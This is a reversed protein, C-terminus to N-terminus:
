KDGASHTPDATQGSDATQYQQLEVQESHSQLTMDTNTVNRSRNIPRTDGAKNCDYKIILVTVVPSLVMIGFTFPICVSLLIITTDSLAQM